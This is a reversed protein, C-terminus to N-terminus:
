AAAARKGYVSVYDIGSIIVTAFVLAGLWIAVWEAPESFKERSLVILIYAAQCFTNIKSLLSPHATVPGIFVRYAIAGAVIIIDRGVAAIVLWLPVLKLYALTVFVTALLFKDAIPDLVGGLASQWGFRRALYGDIGDSAAAIFFLVVALSLRQEALAMAIPVVLVIRIVSIINPIHRM